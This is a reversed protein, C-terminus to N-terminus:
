NSTCFDKLIRLDDRNEEIWEKVNFDSEMREKKMNYDILRKEESFLYQYRNDPEMGLTQLKICVEWESQGKEITEVLFPITLMGMKDLEKCKDEFSSDSNCIKEVLDPVSKTYEKLKRAFWMTSYADKDKSFEQNEDTIAGIMNPLHLNYTAASILLDKIFYNTNDSEIYDLMFPVSAFGLSYLKRLEKENTKINPFHSFPSAPPDLNEITKMLRTFNDELEQARATVGSRSNMFVISIVILLAVVSLIVIYIKGKM